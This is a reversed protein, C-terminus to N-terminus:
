LGLSNPTVNHPTTNAGIGCVGLGIGSSGLSLLLEMERWVLAPLLSTQNHITQRDGRFLPPM